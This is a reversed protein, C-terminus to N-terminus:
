KNKLNNIRHTFYLKQQYLNFFFIFLENEIDIRLAWDSLDKWPNTKTFILHHKRNEELNLLNCFLTGHNKQFKMPGKSNINEHLSQIKEPKLNQIWLHQIWHPRVRNSKMLAFRDGNEMSQKLCLIKKEKNNIKM